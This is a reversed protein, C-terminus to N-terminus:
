ANLGLPWMGEQEVEGNWYLENLIALVTGGGGRKEGSM